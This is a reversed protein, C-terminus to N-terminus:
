YGRKDSYNRAVSDKPLSDQYNRLATKRSRETTDFRFMEFLPPVKFQTLNISKLSCNKVDIITEIEKETGWLVIENESKWKCFKFFYEIPTSPLANYLLLKCKTTAGHKISLFYQFNHIQPVVSLEATSYKIKNQFTKIIFEFMFKERLILEKIRELKSTDLENYKRAILLLANHIFELRIINREQENKNKLSDKTRYNMRVRKGQKSIFENLDSGIQNIFILSYLDQKYKKLLFSYIVEIAYFGGEDTTIGNAVVSSLNLSIKM